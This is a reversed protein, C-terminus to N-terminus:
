VQPARAPRSRADSWAVLARRGDLPAVPLLNLVGLIVNVIALLAFAVSAVPLLGALVLHVSWCTAALVVHSAPGGMAILFAERGDPAGPTRRTAAAWGYLTISHVVRGHAAAVLSHGLEHAFGAATEGLAVVLALLWHTSANSDPLLTPFTVSGLVCVLLLTFLPYAGHVAIEIGALRGLRFARRRDAVTRLAGSM